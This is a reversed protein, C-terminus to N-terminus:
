IGLTRWRLRDVQGRARHTAGTAVFLPVWKSRGAGVRRRVQLGRWERLRRTDPSVDLAFAVLEEHPLADPGDLLDRDVARSARWLAQRALARNADARLRQADAIRPRTAFFADFAARRETLDVMPDDASRLMSDAHVRYVAQPAGLVYAVDSVSAVRLWMNLDSALRCAPDYGGVARQVTTRTVVEPSSICNQANRCRLRIWEEGRWTKTARWHGRPQPVPRDEHWYLGHGYVMGVAPDREMITTARHLAGEVLLDDASLLVTYDGDHAWELGENATAVLGRNRANRRYEVRPDGAALRRAVEPTHDPSCDDLVLVRVQVGAQALVSTVCGELVDAYRYCPVIIKVCPTSM